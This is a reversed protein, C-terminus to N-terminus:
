GHAITYKLLPLTPSDISINVKFHPHLPSSFFYDIKIPGVFYPDPVKPTSAPHKPVSRIPYVAVNRSSQLSKSAQLGIM